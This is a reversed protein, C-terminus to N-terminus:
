KWYDGEDILPEEPYIPSYNGKSQETMLLQIKEIYEGIEKTNLKTTTKLGFRAKFYEHILGKNIYLVQINDPKFGTEDYFKVINEYVAFLWDNQPLTRKKVFPRIIVEAIKGFSVINRIDQEALQLQKIINKENIIM